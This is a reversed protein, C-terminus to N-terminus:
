PEALSLKEPFVGVLQGCRTLVSALLGPHESTIWGDDFEGDDVYIIVLVVIEEESM